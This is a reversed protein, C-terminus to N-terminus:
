QGNKGDGPDYCDGRLPRLSLETAEPCRQERWSICEARASGNRTAVPTIQHQFLTSSIQIHGPISVLWTRAVAICIRSSAMWDCSATDNISHVSVSVADLNPRISLAGAKTSFSSCM